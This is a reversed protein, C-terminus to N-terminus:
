EKPLPVFPPLWWWWWGCPYKVPTDTVPKGTTGEQPYSERTITFGCAPFITPIPPAVIGKMMGPPTTCTLLLGKVLLLALADVVWLVLPYETRWAAFM